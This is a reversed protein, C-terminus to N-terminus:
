RAAAAFAELPAAFNPRRRRQEKVYDSFYSWFSQAFDRFYDDAVTASCLGAEVCSAVRNLLYVLREFHTEFEELPMEGGDATMAMSGVRQQFFAIKDATPDAGLDGAFRQNLGNLRRSLASYADQYRDQEWLEVLTLTREVRKEERAALFQVVTFIAGLILVIRVLFGAWAYSWMRWDRDTFPNSEKKVEHNSVWPMGETTEPLLKAKGPLPAASSPAQPGASAAPQSM